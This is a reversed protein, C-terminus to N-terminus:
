GKREVPDGLAAGPNAAHLLQRLQDELQAYGGEGFAIARVHGTADVLYKAPWYQNRYADWTAYDNDQGVPYGIGEKRVAKAVNGAVKEFSYEPTHIGVVELGKSKYADYWARVHPGDRLCNVCDFTWFDVIVVKGKLGAITAPKGDVTNFWEQTSRFEPAAGCDALEAAGPVCNALEAGDQGSAPALKGQVKVLDALKKELGSTYGPVARQVANTAGLSLALALAIMVLGGVTRFGRAHRRYLKLRESIRSGASAFILLPVAAGVAFSVTLVIIDWGVNGTAGAVTIATLVPGACPVYLTGLGLGLVFAGRDKGGTIKPLRSFPREILHGIAPIILGLGVLTLVVLGV